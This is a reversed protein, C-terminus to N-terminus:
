VINEELARKFSSKTIKLEGSQNMIRVLPPYVDDENEMKSIISSADEVGKVKHPMPGALICDYRENYALKSFSYNKTDQYNIVLEFRNPDLQMSRIIGRLDRKRVNSHGIVLIKGPVDAFSASPQETQIPLQQLYQTLQGRRNHNIMQIEIQETVDSMIQELENLGLVESM